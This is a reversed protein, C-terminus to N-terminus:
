GGELCTRHFIYNVEEVDIAGQTWRSPYTGKWNMGPVRCFGNVVYEREELKCLTQLSPRVMGGFLSKWM